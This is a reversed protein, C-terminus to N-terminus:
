YTLGYGIPYLVQEPADARQVAVPLKGRPTVRGGIVRAAARLEVDTWSYSALCAGVDPLQAVDYPNRIAVAVVPVGTAVLKNVLTRQSSGATVNYTGVVVADASGAAAVAKAITATSPATGTSLATATFGLETLAAALVTTPPGDTGSPSAPDAGVVLVRPRTRRSLPLLGQKNILLTTTRDAIRDAARLHEPTGVTRDVGRETVYPDHLLGLKSKLRLVRLISEDLRAETLEGGRVANLVAHWAIDISPPNLLQDVGAKLALVPVRDDGYKQRVGEMGLSDTVVVGDYGLEERLIGTLIPRSLTAPDGSADLAPVMIHATMISDIGARVAARFPVADLEGWLERSHTIVPFGFHSDVATDGHGPFHKATAAVGSQQYGKVEAAVLGAVADPDAGFSRVGIVPNAPNVNVDADPSYDQLIGLARLEAGGIRGLTRADSRSGGAGIAMAGPFLTAPKGVRAVIGHEQDTAILVPLGRPQDLSAKQIGNSLDAIQHPTRTNHAWTFYIIGGVRYTAILEAATRVGLEKLNADIDAQDPATASHGYVRMVFLQGVKEELTMRSILARLKRDGSPGAHATGSVALVAGAGATAALVTRRSPQATNGTNGTNGTSGTGSDRM